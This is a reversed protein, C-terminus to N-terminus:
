SPDSLAAGSLKSTSFAQARHRSRIEVKSEPQIVIVTLVQIMTLIRRRQMFFELMQDLITSLKRSM